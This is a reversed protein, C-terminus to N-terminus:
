NGIDRRFYKGDFHIHPINQYVSDQAEKVTSGIATVGLVRGGSTLYKSGQKKVGATFIQCATNQMGIIEKGVTYNLPYGESALVVTVASKNSFKIDSEQLTGNISQFIIEVIDSELLPMISQTEPDGMRINYELFVIGDKTCILGGFLFGTYKIGRRLLEQMTANFYKNVTERFQNDSLFSPAFSGMGGTNLGAEGENIKKYDCAHFFPIAKGGDCMAFVSVERGELFEEIVVKKGANGFKGDFFEKLVELAETQNACIYVGKGGALGDTKIVIQGNFTSIYNEADPLEDSTFNKYKATPVGAKCLIDKMFIKSSELLSAKKNCGYTLIGADNLSDALGDCLPAEGGIIVLDINKEKCFAIVDNHNEYQVECPLLKHHENIRIVNSYCAILCESQLLSELIASERGGSGVLLINAKKM